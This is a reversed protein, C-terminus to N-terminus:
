SVAVFALADFKEAEDKNGALFAEQRLDYAFNHLVSWYGAANIYKLENKAVAYMRQQRALKRRLPCDENDFFGGKFEM